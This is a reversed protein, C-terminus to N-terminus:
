LTALQMVTIKNGNRKRVRNNYNGNCERCYAYYILLGSIRIGMVM